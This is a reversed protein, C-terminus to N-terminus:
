MKQTAGAPAAVFGQIRKHAPGALRPIEAHDQRGNPSSFISALHGPNCRSGYDDGRANMAALFEDTTM